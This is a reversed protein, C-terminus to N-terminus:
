RSNCTRRISRQRRKWLIFLLTRMARSDRDAPLIFGTMRRYDMRDRDNASRGEVVQKARQIIALREELLGANTDHAQRSLCERYEQMFPAAAAPFVGGLMFHRNGCPQLKLRLALWTGGFMRAEALYPRMIIRIKVYDGIAHFTRFGKGVRDREAACVFGIAAILKSFGTPMDTLYALWEERFRARSSIPLRGAAFATLKTAFRPSWAALEVLILGAIVTTLVSVWFLSIDM